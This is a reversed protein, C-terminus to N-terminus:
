LLSKRLTLLFLMWKIVQGAGHDRVVPVGELHAFSRVADWAVQWFTLGM